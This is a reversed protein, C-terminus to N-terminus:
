TSMVAQGRRGDVLVVLRLRREDEEEDERELDGDDEVDAGVGSLGMKAEGCVAPGYVDDVNAVALVGTGPTGEEM